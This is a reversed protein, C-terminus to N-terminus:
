PIVESGQFKEHAFQEVSIIDRDILGRIAPLAEQLATFLHWVTRCVARRGEPPWPHTISSYLCRGGCFSLIPCDLCEGGIHVAPLSSSDSSYISGIYWDRVGVMCPCPTIMGNTLITYNAYGSGCRLKSGRSFLLDEVTDIFPYWRLVQGCDQMASVWEGILTSIGPNYCEDVWRGFSVGPYDPWFNADLQWHVSSFSFSDNGALHRVSAAIDTGPPVTMRAILEARCGEAVVTQLNRMVRLYTGAGRNRDNWAEDGDLSVLITDFRNVYEPGLRDLLLGNTQIMFRKVPAHDMVERILDKRLLPEGGYFTLVADPDKELFRYLDAFDYAPEDPLEFDPAYGQEAEGSGQLLKGRCYTCCLNCSDTLILHYYM